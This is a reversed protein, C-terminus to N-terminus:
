AFCLFDLFPVCSNHGVMQKAGRHCNPKANTLSLITRLSLHTADSPELQGCSLSLVGALWIHERLPSAEYNYSGSQFGGLMRSPYWVQISFSFPIESDITWRAKWVGWCEAVLLSVSYFHEPSGTYNIFHFNKPVFFFCKKKWYKIFVIFETLCNRSRILNIWPLKMLLSDLTTLMWSWSQFAKNLSTHMRHYRTHSWYNTVRCPPTNLELLREFLM